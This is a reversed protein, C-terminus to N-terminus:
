GDGMFIRLMSRFSVLHNMIGSNCNKVFRALNENELKNLVQLILSPANEVYKLKEFKSTKENEFDMNKLFTVM